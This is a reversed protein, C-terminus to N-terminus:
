PKVLYLAKLYGYKQVIYRLYIKQVNVDNLQFEEIAEEWTMGNDIITDIDNIIKEKLIYPKKMISKFEGLVKM